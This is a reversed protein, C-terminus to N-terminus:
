ICRVPSTVLAKSMIFPSSFPESYIKGADTPNNNAPLAPVLFWAEATGRSLRQTPALRVKGSTLTLFTRTSPRPAHAPAFSTEM